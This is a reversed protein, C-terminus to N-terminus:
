FFQLNYRASKRNTTEVEGEKDNRGFPSVKSAPPSLDRRPLREDLHCKSPRKGPVQGPSLEGQKDNRGRGTQRKSRLSFGQKITTFTEVRRARHGRLASTSVVNQHASTSCRDRAMGPIVVCVTQRKSRLSFGQKIAPFIEVRRARHGRLASTSIVFFSLVRRAGTGTYKRSHCHLFASTSILRSSVVLVRITKIGARAITTESWIQHFTLPTVRQDGYQRM